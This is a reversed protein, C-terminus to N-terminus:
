KAEKIWIYNVKGVWCGTGLVEDFSSNNKHRCICDREPTYYECGSCAHKNSIALVRLLGDENYVKPEGQEEDALEDKLTNVFGATVQRRRQHQKQSAAAEKLQQEADAIRQPTDLSGAMNVKASLTNAEAANRIAITLLTDLHDILDVGSSHSHTDIM